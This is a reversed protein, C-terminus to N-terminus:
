QQMLITVSYGIFGKGRLCPTEKKFPSYGEMASQIKSFSGMEAQCRPILCNGQYFM